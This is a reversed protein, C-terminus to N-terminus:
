DAADSHSPPQSINQQQVSEIFRQIAKLYSQKGPRYIRVHDAGSIIFLQKPESAADCLRQSMESPVVSDSRGHLFLVPVKLSQM